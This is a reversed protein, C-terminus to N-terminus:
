ALIIALRAVLWYGFVWFASERFSARSLKCLGLALLTTAWLHFVNLSDLVAGLRAGTLSKQALLSLAPRTAPDDSIGILLATVIAGLVLIVGSIGAVELAKLFSFRTKLFVRGMFWLVFASWFTGAFAGLCVTLSSILRWLGALKQAEAASITGAGLVQRIIADTQEKPALAHLLLGQTLCVMLTPLLWNALTPPASVVEEFVDGPAAFLNLLKQALSTRAPPADAAIITESAM